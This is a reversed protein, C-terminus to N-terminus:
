HRSLLSFIPLGKIKASLSCNKEDYKAETSHKKDWTKQKALSNSEQDNWCTSFVDDDVPIIWILNISLGTTRYAWMETLFNKLKM